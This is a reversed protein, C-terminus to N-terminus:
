FPRLGGCGLHCMPIAPPGNEPPSGTGQYVDLMGWNADDLPDLRSDNPVLGIAGETWPRDVSWWSDPPRTILELHLHPGSSKGTSGVVGITQGKVVVAGIAPIQDVSPMHAYLTYEDNTTSLDEHRVIAMSGFDAHTGRGVVVGDAACPIATGAASPYDVGDHAHKDGDRLEGFKSGVSYEPGPYYGPM